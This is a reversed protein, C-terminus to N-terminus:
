IQYWSIYVNGEGSDNTFSTFYSPWSVAPVATSGQATLDPNASMIQPINAAALLQHFRVLGVSIDVPSNTTGQLLYTVRRVPRGDATSPALVDDLKSINLNTVNPALAEAWINRIQQM